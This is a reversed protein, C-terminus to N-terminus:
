KQAQSRNLKKLALNSQDSWCVYQKQQTTHLTISGAYACCVELLTKLATVTPVLFVM